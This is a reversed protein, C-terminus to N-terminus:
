SFSGRYDIPGESLSSLIAHFELFNALCWNCDLIQRLTSWAFKAITCFFFIHGADETASCLVCSGTAPGHRTAIQQSSPLRELILQWAFIKIKLPVRAEWVDKHYAVFAGQSLKAYLFQVSFTGSTNLHWSVKHKGNEYTFNELLTVLHTWQMMEDQNLSRRFRLNLEGERFVSAVYQTPNDSINFLNPFVGKLPHDRTWWDSWFCTRRRDSIMHKAGLKFYHKIKHLNKWFQSGSQGTGTFLDDADRYKAWIIKSWITDEEQYFKWIWKSLLALNM